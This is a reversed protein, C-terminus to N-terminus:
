KANKKLKFLELGTNNPLAIEGHAHSLYTHTADRERVKVEHYKGYVARGQYYEGVEADAVTILVEPM